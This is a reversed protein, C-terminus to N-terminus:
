KTYNGHKHNSSYKYLLNLQKLFKLSNEIFKNVHFPPPASICTYIYPFVYGAKVVSSSLPHKRFKTPIFHEHGLVHMFINQGYKGLPCIWPSAFYTVPPPPPTREEFLKKKLDSPKLLLGFEYCHDLLM